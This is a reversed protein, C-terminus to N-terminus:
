DCPCKSTCMNVNVLQMMYTDASSSGLYADNTKDTKPVCIQKGLQPMWSATSACVVGIIFIGLATSGLGCGYIMIFCRHECKIVLCGM